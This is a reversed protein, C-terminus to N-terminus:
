RGMERLHAIGVREWQDMAVDLTKSLLSVQKSRPMGKLSEVRHELSRAIEAWPEAQLYYRSTIEVSLDDAIAQIGTLLEYAEDIPERLEDSNVQSEEWEILELIKRSPDLIGTKAHTEYGHGQVGIADRKAQAQEEIKRIEIAAERAAVFVERVTLACEVSEGQEDSSHKPHSTLHWGGCYECKYCALGLTPHREIYRNATSESRFRTKRGCSGHAVKGYKDTVKKDRRKRERANRNERKRERRMERRHRSESDNHHRRGKKPTGM